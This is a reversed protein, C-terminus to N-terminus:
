ICKAPIQLSIQFFHMKSSKPRNKLELHEFFDLIRWFKGFFITIVDDLGEYIANTGSLLKTQCSFCESVHYIKLISFIAFKRLFPRLFPRFLSKRYFIRTSIEVPRRFKQRFHIKWFWSIMKIYQNIPM